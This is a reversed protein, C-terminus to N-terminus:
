FGIWKSVMGGGPILAGKTASHKVLPFGARWRTYGRLQALSRAGARLVVRLRDSPPCVDGHSVVVRM